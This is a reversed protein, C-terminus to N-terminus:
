EGIKKATLPEIIASRGRSSRFSTNEESEIRKQSKIRAVKIDTERKIRAEVRAVRKREISQIRAIRKEEKINSENVIAQLELEATKAKTKAMDAIFEAAKKENEAIKIQKETKELKSDADKLEAQNIRLQAHKMRAESEINRVEIAKLDAKVKQKRVKEADKAIRKRLKKEEETLDKQEKLKNQEADFRLFIIVIALAFAAGAAMLTTKTYSKNIPKGSDIPASLTNVGENPVNYMDTVAEQFAEITSNVVSAPRNMDKSTFSINVVEDTKDRTVSLGSRLESISIGDLKDEVNGLVRNSTILAVYNGIAIDRSLSQQKTDGLVIVRASAEYRAPLLQVYAVAACIAIIVVSVIAVWNRLTYRLFDVISIADNETSDM